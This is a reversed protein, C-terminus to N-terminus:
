NLSEQIIKTDTFQRFQIIKGYQVLYVHSFQVDFQKDSKSIGQYRGIVMVHDKFDLFQEPIAHFEKFNSLMKPFYEEFIEKIGHFTGGNPMKDMTIWEIEDHCFDLYKKDKNKFLEYFEQILPVNSM